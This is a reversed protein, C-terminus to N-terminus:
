TRFPAFAHHVKAPRAFIRASSARVSGSAASPCLPSESNITSFSGKVPWSNVIRCGPPPTILPFASAVIPHQLELGLYHTRLDVSM